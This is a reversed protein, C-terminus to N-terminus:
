HAGAYYIDIVLGGAMGTTFTRVGGGAQTATYTVFSPSVSIGLLCVKDYANLLAFAGASLSYPNVPLGTATNIMAVIVRTAPVIGATVASWVVVGSTVLSGKLQAINTNITTTDADITSLYSNATGTNSVISASSSQISATASEINIDSLRIDALQGTMTGTDLAIAQESTIQTLQNAATADGGGGGGGTTRFAMVGGGTDETVAGLQELNYTLSSYNPNEGAM